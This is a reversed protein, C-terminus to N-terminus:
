AEGEEDEGCVHESDAEDGDELDVMGTATCDACAWHWWGGVTM